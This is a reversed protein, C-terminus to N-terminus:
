IALQHLPRDNSICSTSDTGSLFMAWRTCTSVDPHTDGLVRCRRSICDELLRKGRDIHGIDAFLNALNNMSTLSHPHDEGLLERQISLAEEYRRRRILHFLERAACPVVSLTIISAAFTRVIAPGRCFKWPTYPAAGPESVYAFTHTLVYTHTRASTSERYGCQNFGPHLPRKARYDAKECGVSRRITTTCRQSGWLLRM